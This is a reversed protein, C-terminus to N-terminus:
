LEESTSMSSEDACSFTHIFELGQKWTISKTRKKSDYPISQTFTRITTQRCTRKNQERQHMGLLNVTDLLVRRIKM